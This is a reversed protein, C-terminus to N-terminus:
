VKPINKPRLFSPYAGLEPHFIPKLFFWSQYLYKLRLLVQMLIVQLTGRRFDNPGKLREKSRKKPQPKHNQLGQAKMDATALM